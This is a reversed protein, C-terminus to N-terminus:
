PRVPTADFKKEVELEGNTPGTANPKPTMKAMSEQAWMEPLRLILHSHKGGFLTVLYSIM